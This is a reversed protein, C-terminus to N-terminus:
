TPFTSFPSLFLRLIVGFGCACRCVIYFLYAYNGFHGTSFGLLLQAWLTDIRIIISGSFLFRLRFLLFLQNFINPPCDVFSMYMYLGHLIIHMTHMTEFHGYMM